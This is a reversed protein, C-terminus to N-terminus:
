SPIGNDGAGRSQRRRRYADGGDAGRVETELMLEATASFFDAPTPCTKVSIFPEIEGVKAVAARADEFSLGFQTLAPAEMGVVTELNELDEEAMPVYDSCHVIVLNVNKAVATTMEGVCWPREQLWGGCAM